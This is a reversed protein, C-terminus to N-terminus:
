EYVILVVIPFGRINQSSLSPYVGAFGSVAKDVNTVVVQSPTVTWNFHYGYSNNFDSSVFNDTAYEVMVSVSLITVTTLDLGHNIGTNSTASANTTGTLKKMKISPGTSGLRTFGDVELNGAAPATASGVRLGNSVTAYGTTSINQAGFSPTVKSGAIAASASVDADVITNAAIDASSVTGDLIDGTAITGDSIDASVITGDTIKASTVDGDAIRAIPLTGSTINSANIGTGVLSGSLTGTTVNTASVGTGVLSGTLAGTTINSANIGTGVLSGSLTGTTVNSASIGTGIKSGAIAASGSIDANTITGDTIKASTVDGDAIRAIPLTGATINTASIGSITAGDIKTGAIAASASIDSNTITGDTIKVSSIDGDAIRAIPLTGSTINTANIGTGVISGTLVGDALDQVYVNDVNSAMFSYPVTTLPVPNGIAVNNVKIEITLENKWTDFDGPLEQGPVKGLTVTFLGKEVAQSTFTETHKVTSGHLLTLTINRPTTVPIDSETLFGQYSLTKPVQALSKMCVMLMLAISIYFIKKM